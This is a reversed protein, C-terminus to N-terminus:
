THRRVPMGWAKLVRLAEPASSATGITMGAQALRPFVDTQGEVWRMRGNRSRSWRSKSLGQRPRKLELGYVRGNWVLLIDPWGRRLGMRTLKAAQQGSLQIHGAPFTSWQVEPPLLVEFARAVAEHIDAEPPVQETLALRPPGASRATAPM